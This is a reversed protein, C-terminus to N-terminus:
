KSQDTNQGNYKYGFHVYQNIKNAVTKAKSSDNLISTLYGELKKDMAGIYKQDGLTMRIDLYYGIEASGKDEGISIIHHSDSKDGIIGSVTNGDSDQLLRIYTNAGFVNQTTIFFTAITLIIKNIKRKM